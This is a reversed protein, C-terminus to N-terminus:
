EELRLQGLLEALQQRSMLVRLRRLMAFIQSKYPGVAAALDEGDEIMCYGTVDGNRVGGIRMRHCVVLQEVVGKITRVDRGTATALKEISIADARGKHRWIIEGIVREMKSPEVKSDAFPGREDFLPAAGVPVGGVFDEADAKV